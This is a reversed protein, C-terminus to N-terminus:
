FDDARKPVRPFLCSADVYTIIGHESKMVLQYQHKVALMMQLVSCCQCRPCGVLHVVGVLGFGVLVWFNVLCM